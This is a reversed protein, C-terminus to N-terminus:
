DTDEKEKFVELLCEVEQPNLCEDLMENCMNVSEEDIGADLVLRESFAIRTMSVLFKRAIGGIQSRAYGDIRRITASRLKAPLDVQLTHTTTAITTATSPRQSPAVVSNPNHNDHREDPFTHTVSYALRVLGNLLDAHNKADPPNASLQSLEDYIANFIHPLISHHQLILCTVRYNTFM